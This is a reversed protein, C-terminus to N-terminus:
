PLTIRAERLIKRVEERVLARLREDTPPRSTHPKMRRPRLTDPDLDFFDAAALLDAKTATALDLHNRQRYTPWGPQESLATRLAARRGAPLLRTPDDTTHANM